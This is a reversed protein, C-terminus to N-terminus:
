VNRSIRSSKLVEEISRTCFTRSVKQVLLLMGSFWINYYFFVLVRHVLSLTFKDILSDNTVINGLRLAFVM